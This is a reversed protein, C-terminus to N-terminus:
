YVLIGNYGTVGYIYNKAEAIVEGTFEDTLDGNVASWGGVM